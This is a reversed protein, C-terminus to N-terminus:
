DSDCEVEDKEVKDDLWKINIHNYKMVPTTSESMYDSKYLRIVAKKPNTKPDIGKSLLQDRKKNVKLEFPEVKKDALKNWMLEQKRKM